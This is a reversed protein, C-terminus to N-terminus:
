GRFCDPATPGLFDAGATAGAGNLLPLFSSKTSSSPFSAAM